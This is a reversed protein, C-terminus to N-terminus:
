NLTYGYFIYLKIDLVFFIAIQSIIGAGKNIRYVCPRRRWSVGIASLSLMLVFLVNINNFNIVPPCGVSDNLSFKFTIFKTCSYM